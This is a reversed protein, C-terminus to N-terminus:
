SFSALLSFLSPNLSRLFPSLFFLHRVHHTIRDDSELYPGAASREQHPPPSPLTTHTYTHTHPPPPNFFSSIFFYMFLPLLSSSSLLLLSISFSFSFFFALSYIFFLSYILFLICPLISFCFCFLFFFFLFWFGRSKSTVGQGFSGLVCTWWSLSYCVGVVSYSGIPSPLIFIGFFIRHSFYWSLSVHWFTCVERSLFFWCKSFLTQLSQLKQEEASADMGTDDGGDLQFSLTFFPYFISYKILCCPSLFIIDVHKDMLKFRNLLNLQTSNTM